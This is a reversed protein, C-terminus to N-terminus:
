GEDMWEGDLIVGAQERPTGVLGASQHLKYIIGTYSIFRTFLRTGFPRIMGRLAQVM